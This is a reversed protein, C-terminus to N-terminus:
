SVWLRGCRGRLAILVHGRQEQVQMFREMAALRVAVRASQLERSKLREGHIRIKGNVSAGEEGAAAEGETSESKLLQEGCIRWFRFDLLFASKSGMGGGGFAHDEEVHHTSGRLEVQEIVFGDELFEVALEGWFLENFAFTEGEKAAVGFQEAGTVLELLVTLRACPNAFEEGVEGLDSIFDGEDAGHGSGLEIVGGSLEGKVRSAVALALGRETRPDVEPQAAEVAVDRAVDHEDGAAQGAGAGVEPAAAEEGANMLADLEAALAFGHKEEVVGFACVGCATALHELADDRKVGVEMVSQLVGLDEGSDLLVFHGEAHLGAHGPEHIELVFGGGDNLHVALAIEGTM